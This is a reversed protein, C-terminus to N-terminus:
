KFRQPDVNVVFAKGPKGRFRILDISALLIFKGVQGVVRDIFLVVFKDLIAISLLIVQSM